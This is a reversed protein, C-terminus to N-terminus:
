LVTVLIQCSPNSSTIFKIMGTEVIAIYKCNLSDIKLIASALNFGLLDSSLRDELLITKNSSEKLAKILM